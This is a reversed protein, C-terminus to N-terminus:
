FNERTAQEYTPINGRFARLTHYLFDNHKHLCANLRGEDSFERKISEIVVFGAHDDKQSVRFAYYTRAKMSFNKVEEGNYGFMKKQRKVYGSSSKDPDPLKSVYFSQKVQVKGIVGETIKHKTRRITWQDNNEPYRRVLEVTIKDERLVYLSLRETHQCEVIEYLHSLYNHFM